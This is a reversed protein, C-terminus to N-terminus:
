LVHQEKTLILFCLGRITFCYLSCTSYYFDAVKVDNRTVTLHYTDKPLSSVNMIETWLGVNYICKIMCNLELAISELEESFKLVTKYLQFLVNSYGGFATIDMVVPTILTRALFSGNLLWYLYIWIQSMVRWITYM